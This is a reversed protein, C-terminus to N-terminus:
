MSMGGDVSIVQGTIYNSNDSGLFVALNAIDETNGLKKLPIQSLISEKQKENLSDTMDTQIFGPAIANVTIGRAGVERALSKTMGIVGSKSACYNTQGANGILGVVSSMNIIKGYKQKMMVSTAAKMCNFSGKLNIDIVQDFDEETMRIILNDKTIGANNVLIDLKGFQKKTENVLNVCDELNSVECKVLLTKVNFKKIEEDFAKARELDNESKYSIVIDCGLSAYKLSIERGIGRLCGTVIAVKGSLM